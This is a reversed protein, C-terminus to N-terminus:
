AWYDNCVKAIKQPLCQTSLKWRQRIRNNGMKELSTGMYKVQKIKYQLKDRSFTVNKARAREIVALLTTDHEQEDKRAIILNDAIIHVNDIDGFTEDNRQQLMESASSLGFPMRLFRKRGM